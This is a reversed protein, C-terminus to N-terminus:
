EFNSSDYVSWLRRERLTIDGDENLEFEPDIVYVGPDDLRPHVLDGNEDNEFMDTVKRNFQENINLGSQKILGFSATAAPAIYSTSSAGKDLSAGGGGSGGGGAALSASTFVGGGINLTDFTGVGTTILSGTIHLDNTTAFISGTPLFIGNPAEELTNIRISLSSSLTTIKASSSASEALLNVGFINGSASIHGSATINTSSLEEIYGEKWNKTVSGINYLSDADPIFNSNIDAGFSVSDTDANGFTLNGNITANGTVSLDGSVSVRGFSATQSASVNGSLTMDSATISNSVTIGGQVEFINRTNETKGIAVNNLFYNDFNRSGSIRLSGTFIHLDTDVTGHISSGSVQSISSTVISQTTVILNTFRGTDAEVTGQINLQYPTDFNTTGIAVKGDHTIKMTNNIKLNDFLKDGTFADYLETIIVPTLTQGDGIGTKVLTAM